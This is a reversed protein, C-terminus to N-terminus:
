KCGKTCDEREELADDKCKDLKVNCPAMCPKRNDCNARTTCAPCPKQCDQYGDLCKAAKESFEDDCQKCKSEGGGHDPPLPKPRASVSEPALTAVAVSFSALAAFAFRSIRTSMGRFRLM